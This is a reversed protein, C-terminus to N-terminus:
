LVAKAVQAMPGGPGPLSMSLTIMMLRICSGAQSANAPVTRSCSNRMLSGTCAAPPSWVILIVEREQGLPDDTAAQSLAAIEKGAVGSILPSTRIRALVECPM